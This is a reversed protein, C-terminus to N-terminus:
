APPADRTEPTTSTQNRHRRRPPPRAAALLRRDQTDPRHHRDAAQPHADRLAGPQGQVQAALPDRLVREEGHAAPGRARAQHGARPRIGSYGTKEPPLPAPGAVKAGTRTVTDVIKRASSDIVEHDYAKLRIRIKQGAM